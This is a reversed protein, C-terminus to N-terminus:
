DKLPPVEDSFDQISGYLERIKIDMENESPLSLSLSDVRNDDNCSSFQADESSKSCSVERVERKERIEPKDSCSNIRLKQNKRRSHEEDEESAM